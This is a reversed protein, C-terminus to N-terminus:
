WDFPSYYGGSGPTSFPSYYPTRDNVHISAGISINNGIKYISGFSYSNHPAIVMGENNIPFFTSMHRIGTGYFSLKENLQYNATGYVALGPMAMMTHSEAETDNPAGFFSTYSFMIGGHFSLRPTLGYSAEPAIFFENGSGYAGSYFYSTGLTTNFQMRKIKDGTSLSDSLSNYFSEVEGGQGYILVGSFSFLLFTFLIKKM